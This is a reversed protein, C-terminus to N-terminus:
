VELAPIEAPIPSESIYASDFPEGWPCTNGYAAGGRHALKVKRTAGIKLGLEHCLRSFYWDEPEVQPVYRGDPTRVIRDNITFRVQSAWSQDFRCAWLGTNLLLPHGVDESTFTEPLRYVESMTLRCLPQWTNGDPHDLALSTLGKPDKIPVVAGLIDLDRSELENILVDLWWDQPEVDAHIMAFYDVRRVADLNLASCWLANFNRALLSGENYQRCVRGDPLRTARWFARAAGATVEGYGPQALFVFPERDSANM